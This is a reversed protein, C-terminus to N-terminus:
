PMLFLMCKFLGIYIERLGDDSSLEDVVGDVEVSGDWPRLIKDSVPSLRYIGSIELESRWESIGELSRLASLLFSSRGVFAWREAPNYVLLDKSIEKMRNKVLLHLDALLNNILKSSTENVSLIEKIAKRMRDGTTGNEKTYGSMVQELGDGVMSITSIISLQCQDFVNSRDAKFVGSGSLHEGVLMEWLTQGTITCYISPLMMTKMGLFHAEAYDRDFARRIVMKGRSHVMLKVDDDVVAMGYGLKESWKIDEYNGSRFLTGMSHSEFLANKGPENPDEVVAELTFRTYESCPTIEKPAHSTRSRQFRRHIERKMEGRRNQSGKRDFPCSGDQSIGYAICSTKGCFGCNHEKLSEQDEKM